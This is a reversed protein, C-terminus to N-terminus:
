VQGGRKAQQDTLPELFGSVRFGSPVEAELACYGWANSVRKETSLLLTQLSTNESQETVQYDGFPPM